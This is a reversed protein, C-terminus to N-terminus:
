ASKEVFEDVKEPSGPQEDLTKIAKYRGLEVLSEAKYFDFMTASDRSIEILVDPRHEELTLQDIRWTLLDITKTILNFYTLRRKKRKLGPRHLRKYFAKTKKLYESEIAKHHAAPLDPKELPISANVNVAILIDGPTRKVHDIPINNM